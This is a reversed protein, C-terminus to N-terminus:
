GRASTDDSQHVAVVIGNNETAALGSRGQGRSKCAGALRDRDNFTMEKTSCANVGAARRGFRQDRARANGVIRAARVVKSDLERRSTDCDVHAGNLSSLLSYDIRGLGSQLIPHPAQLGTRDVFTVCSEFRRSGHTDLALYKRRLLDKDVYATSRSNGGKGANVSDREQCACRKEFELLQRRMQNDDPSTVDSKFERLHIPSKAAFDCHYLLVSAKQGVLIRFHSRRDLACEFCLTNLYSELGFANL